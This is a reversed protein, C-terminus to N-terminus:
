DRMSAEMVYLVSDENAGYVNVGYVDVSTINSTQIVHAEHSAVKLFNTSGSIALSKDALMYEMAHRIHQDYRQVSLVSPQRIALRYRGYGM